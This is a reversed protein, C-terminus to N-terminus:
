GKSAYKTVVTKTIKIAPRYVAEYRKILRFM